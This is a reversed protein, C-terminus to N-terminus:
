KTNFLYTILKDKIKKRAKDEGNSLIQVAAIAANKFGTKGIRAFLVPCGTPTRTISLLADLAHSFEASPLAVGLILFIINWIPLLLELFVLQWEPGPL